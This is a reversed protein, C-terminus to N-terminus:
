PLANTAEGSSSSSQISLATIVSEPQYLVRSGLKIHPIVGKSKYRKVTEESVSILRALSNSDVLLPQNALHGAIVEGLSALDAPSLSLHESM